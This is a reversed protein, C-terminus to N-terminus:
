WHVCTSFHRHGLLKAHHHVGRHGEWNTPPPDCNPAPRHSGSTETKPRACEPQSHGHLLLPELKRQFLWFIWGSVSVRLVDVLIPVKWETPRLFSLIKFGLVVDGLNVHILVWDPCLFRLGVVIAVLMSSSKWNFPRRPSSSSLDLAVSAKRDMVNCCLIWSDFVQDLQASPSVATIEVVKFLCIRGRRMVWGSEKVKDTSKDPLIATPCSWPTAVDHHNAVCEWHSTITM